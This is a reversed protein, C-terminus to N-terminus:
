GHKLLFIIKYNTDDFIVFKLVDHRLLSVALYRQLLRLFYTFNKPNKWDKDGQIKNLFEKDASVDEEKPRYSRKGGPSLSLSWHQRKGGPALHPSWHQRKPWAEEQMSEIAYPPTPDMLDEPRDIVDHIIHCNAIVSFLVLTLM